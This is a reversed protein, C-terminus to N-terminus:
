FRLMQVVEATARHVAGCARVLATRTADRLSEIAPGAATEEPPPSGSTCCRTSSRRGTTASTPLSGRDGGAAVVDTNYDGATLATRDGHAALAAKPTDSAM